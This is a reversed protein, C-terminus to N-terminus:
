TVTAESYNVGVYDVLFSQDDMGYRAMFYTPFGMVGSSPRWNTGTDPDSNLEEGDRIWGNSVPFIDFPDNSDLDTNINFTDLNISDTNVWYRSLVSDTSEHSYVQWIFTATRGITPDVPVSFPMQDADKNSGFNSGSQLTEDGNGTTPYVTQRSLTAYDKKEEGTNDDSKVNCQTLTSTPFGGVGWFDNYETTFKGAGTGGGLSTLNAPHTSIFSFGIHQAPDFPATFNTSTYRTYTDLWYRMIYIACTTGTPAASIPVKCRGWETSDGQLEIRKDGTIIAAM